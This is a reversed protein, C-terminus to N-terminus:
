RNAPARDAWWASSKGRRVDLSLDQHVAHDGFRNELGEIRIAFDSVAGTM